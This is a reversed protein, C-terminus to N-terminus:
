SDDIDVLRGNKRQSGSYDFLDITMDLEDRTNLGQVTGSAGVALAALGGEDDSSGITLAGPKRASASKEASAGKGRPISELVNYLQM